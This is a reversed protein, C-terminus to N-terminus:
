PWGLKTVSLRLVRHQLPQCTGMGRTPYHKAPVRCLLDRGTRDRSIIGGVIIVREQHASGPKQM